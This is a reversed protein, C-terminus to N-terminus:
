NDTTTATSDATSANNNGNNEELEPYKNELVVFGAPINDLDV